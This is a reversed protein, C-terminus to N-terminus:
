PAQCPLVHYHFYFNIVMVVSKRHAIFKPGEIYKKLSKKNEPVALALRESFCSTVDSGGDTSAETNFSVVNVKFFLLWFCVM